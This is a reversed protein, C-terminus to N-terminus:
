NRDSFLISNNIENLRQSKVRTRGLLLVVNWSKETAQKVQKGETNM